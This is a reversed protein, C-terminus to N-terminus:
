PCLDCQGYLILKRLRADPELGSKFAAVEQRLEKEAQTLSDLPLDDLANQYLDEFTKSAQNAEEQTPRMSYWAGLSVQWGPFGNVNSKGIIPTFLDRNTTRRYYVCALLAESIVKVEENVLSTQALAREVLRSYTHRCAACYRYCAGQLAELAFWTKNGQLHQRFPEFLPHETAEVSGYGWDRAVSAEESDTPYMSASQGTWLKPGPPVARVVDLPHPVAIRDRVGQGFYFLERRHPGLEPDSNSREGKFGQSATAALINPSLVGLAKKVSRPDRGLKKAIEQPALGAAHLKGIQEAERRSVRDKRRGLSDRKM